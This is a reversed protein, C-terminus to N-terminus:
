LPLQRPGIRAGTIHGMLGWAPRSQSGLCLMEQSLFSPLSRHCHATCPTVFQYPTTIRPMTLFLLQMLWPQNIQWCSLRVLLNPWEKKTNATFSGRRIESFGFIVRPLICIKAKGLNLEETCSSGLWMDTRTRRGRSESRELKFTFAQNSCLHGNLGNLGTFPTCSQM